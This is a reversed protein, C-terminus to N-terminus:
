APVPERDAADGARVLVAAPGGLGYTTLSAFPVDREVRGGLVATLRAAVEDLASSPSM